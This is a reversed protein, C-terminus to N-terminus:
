RAIEIALQPPCGRKLLRELEHLDIPGLALDIAQDLTYGLREAEDRRWSFLSLESTHQELGAM